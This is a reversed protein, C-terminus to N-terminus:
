FEGSSKSETSGHAHNDDADLGSRDAVVGGKSIAEHMKEGALYISESVYGLTKVSLNYYDENNSNKEGVGSVLYARAFTDDGALNMLSNWKRSVKMKSKSMSIVIQQPKGGDKPLLLCFHQATDLATFDEAPEKKGDKDKLEGIAQDAQNKSPYAGRFGGGKKRDKWILWEKLFFCPVVTVDEGYLERTVNNYLMGEEAGEIYDPNDKKRCPSLSQVIELRPIVLDAVTVNEAGRATDKLFAPRDTKALVGGVQAVVETSKAEPKAAPTPKAASKPQTKAQVM